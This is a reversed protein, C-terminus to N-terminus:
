AARFEIKGKKLYFIGRKYTTKLVLTHGCISIHVNPYATNYVQVTSNVGSDILEKLHSHEKKLEVINIELAELKKGLDTLFDGVVNGSTYLMELEELEKEKQKVEKSLDYFRNQDNKSYGVIIDTKINTENGFNGASIKKQAHTRGGVISSQPNEDGGVIVEQLAHLQCTILSDKILISEQSHVEANEMFSVNVEGDAIIKSENGRVGGRIIINGKAEAVANEINADICIDATTEVCFGPEVHGKVVVTADTRINGTSNDIGDLVISDTVKIKNKNVVLTGDRDIMLDGVSTRHLGKLELTIEKPKKAEIENKYVDFGSEEPVVPVVHGIKDGKKVDWPYSREKFDISGNKMLKGPLVQQNLQVHADIGDKAKKGKAAIFDIFPFDDDAAQKSKQIDAVIQEIAETQIGYCINDFALTEQLILLSIARSKKDKPFVPINIHAELKDESVELLNKLSIYKGTETEDEAENEGESKCGSEFAVIGLTQARYKYHCDDKLLEVNNGVGPFQGTGAKPSIENGYIDIGSEADVICEYSAITQGPGVVKNLILESDHKVKWVLDGYQGAIPKQSFLLNVKQQIDQELEALQRRHALRLVKILLGANWGHIIDMRKLTDMIHTAKINTHIEDGLFGYLNYNAAFPKKEDVEILSTVSLTDELLNVIGLYNSYYWTQDNNQDDKIITKYIGEGETVHLDPLTDPEIEEGYIDKGPKAEQQSIEYAIPHDPAIVREYEHKALPNVYWYLGVSQQHQPKEGRVILVPPPSSSTTNFKQLTNKIMDTNIGISINSSKLAELIQDVTIETSETEKECHLELYAYLKDDSIYITFQKDAFLEIM